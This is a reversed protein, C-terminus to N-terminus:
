LKLALLHLLVQQWHHFSLTMSPAGQPCVSWCQPRLPTDVSVWFLLWLVRAKGQALLELWCVRDETEGLGPGGELLRKLTLQCRFM